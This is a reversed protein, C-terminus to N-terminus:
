DSARHPLVCGLQTLDLVCGGTVLYVTTSLAGIQRTLRGLRDRFVRGLPYAPVVGWGTEEAVWITEAATTRVGTLLAEVRREWTQEDESLCNAVWTGLSDVLLCHSSLAREIAAALEVPVVETEWSAPRRQAHKEIKTLWEVDETDVQATAIYCVPKGTKAALHEAWESKGSSAPGTVLITRNKIPSPNM